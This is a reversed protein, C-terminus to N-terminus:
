KKDKPDVWGVNGDNRRYVMNLGGHASNRFMMANLDALDMRMIADSVSCVPIESELEAITIPADEAVEAEQAAESQDLLSVVSLSAFENVSSKGKHSTIRRKHRRLRKAMHENATDLASYPDNGLGAGQLLMGKHPHVSLDARFNEGEKSFTVNAGISDDFYKAITPELNTEVYERLRQGINVQKGTITINM